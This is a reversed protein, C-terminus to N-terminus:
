FPPEDDVESTKARRGRTPKASASKRGDNSTRAPTSRSKASAAPAKATGSAAKRKRAPPPPPGEEEEEDDELEGEGEEEEDEEEELEDEEEEELDELDDEDPEEDELWKGIRTQWENGYKERATVVRCRADPGPIWKGIKTIPAGINDDDKDIVTQLKVMKITLGFVEFFPAWRFKVKATLALNIWIPLGDYQAEEGVNGDAVFLAKIMPDEDKTYTWWASKVHGRLITGKPPIEGDYTAFDRDDYEAEELEDVDLEDDTIKLKPM